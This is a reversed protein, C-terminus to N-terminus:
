EINDIGLKKLRYRISRFTIGLEKATATRNWRNKNLSKLLISKEITALYSDISEEEPNYHESLLRADSNEILDTDIIETNDTSTSAAHTGNIDRAQGSFILNETNIAHNESLACARELTNELERINGPFHYQTLAGLAAKTLKYPPENNRESIKGLLFTALSIIDDKRERLPPININIVNVRYFLDNRFLGAEVADILNKHTASIIRVDFPIEKQAGVPRVTKEQIVRLLKVQMDLPLDAIEDLLLTGGDATQFLGKKDEYAGTFSGKMHGFFESEMLEKPIAGCNIAIFPQNKRSSHNHIARAVLEKGSGSEGFIFVPAQSRSVKLIEKKLTVTTACDGIIEPIVDDKVQSTTSIANNILSRLHQLDIPKNIFDFAGLKMAKIAIDMSGHATIVIVPVNPQHTQLHNVIDLGSGDPLRLDSLCLQFEHEALAEHAQQINEALYPTLGMRQLTISLLQRIDPEDDIVLVLSSNASM